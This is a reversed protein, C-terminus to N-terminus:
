VVGKSKRRLTALGLLSVGVLSLTSPEPIPDPSFNIWEPQAEFGQLGPWSTGPTIPPFCPDAIGCVQTLLLGGRKLNDFQVTLNGGETLASEFLPDGEGAAVTYTGGLSGNAIFGGFVDIVLSMGPADVDGRLFAIAGDVEWNDILVFDTAESGAYTGLILGSGFFDSGITLSGSVLNLTMMFSVQHVQNVEDFGLSISTGDSLLIRDAGATVTLMENIGDYVFTQEYSSLDISVIQDGPALAFSLAHAPEFIGLCGVGVLAAVVGPIGLRRM